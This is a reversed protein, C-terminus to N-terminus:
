LRQIVSKPVGTIRSIQRLTIGDISKMIKIIENRQSKELQALNSINHINMEVLAEFVEEDTVRMNEDYEMCSDENNETNFKKFAEITDKYSSRDAKFQELVFSTDCLVPRSIYEGYSSWKYDQVSKVVGAKVPNQHIYRLVTLLYRDDEVVESKFREQFLHGSREYKWNYWQVYSSCLRHMISSVPDSGEHILLHLHNDMLCYGYVKYSIIDKLDKIKLIIKQKDEDDEFIVQRNIGRLIIHYVGTESKKRPQRPM